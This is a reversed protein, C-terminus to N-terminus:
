KRDYFHFILKKKKKISQKDSNNKVSPIIYHQKRTRINPKPNKLMAPPYYDM